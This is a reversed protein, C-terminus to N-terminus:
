GEERQKRLKKAAVFVAKARRARRILDALAAHRDTEEALEPPTLPTDSSFYLYTYENGVADGPGVIWGLFVGLAVQRPINHKPHYQGRETRKYTSLPFDVIEAAERLSYGLQLRRNRM